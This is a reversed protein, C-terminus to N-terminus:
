TSLRCSIIVAWTFLLRNKLVAACYDASMLCALIKRSLSPGAGYFNDVTPLITHTPRNCAGSSKDMQLAVERRTGHDCNLGIDQNGVILLVFVDLGSAHAHM